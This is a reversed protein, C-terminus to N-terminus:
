RTASGELGELMRGLAQDLLAPDDYAGSALRQRAQHVKDWRVPDAKRPMAAPQRRPRDPTQRGARRTSVRDMQTDTLTAM